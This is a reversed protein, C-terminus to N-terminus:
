FGVALHCRATEGPIRIKSDSSDLSDWVFRLTIRRINEIVESFRSNTGLVRGIFVFYLFGQSRLQLVARYTTFGGRGEEVNAIATPWYRFQIYM